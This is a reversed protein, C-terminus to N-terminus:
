LVISQKLLTVFLLSCQIQMEVHMNKNLNMFISKSPESYIRYNHMAQAVVLGLSDDLDNFAAM